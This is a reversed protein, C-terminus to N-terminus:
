SISRPRNELIVKGVTRGSELLEHATAADAMPVVAEIVPRIAGSEILPIVDRIVGAVIAAKQQKPRARLLTASISGRRALLDWLDITTTAMSGGIMILHGDDALCRINRALYDAGVLDLIADVGDGETVELVVDVFDSTNYNIATAAGLRMGAQAKADSGATTLVTAGVAAAWQIAFSGIGGGAGHVLVSKGAAVGAIMALNSYVTCAVEPFSAAETMTLGAPLPMVQGAPVAVEDAYGGGALLACVKDGVHWATVDSGIATIVGACELGLPRPAGPPVPYHGRRQLLDANNIGAAHVDIVVENAAPSLKAVPRLALVSPAGPHDFLVANPM